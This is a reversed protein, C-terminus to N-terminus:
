FEEGSKEMSDGFGGEENGRWGVEPLRMDRIIEDPTRKHIDGTVNIGSFGGFLESYQDWKDWGHTQCLKKVGEEKVYM